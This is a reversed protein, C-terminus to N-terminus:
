NRVVFLTFFYYFYIANKTLSWSVQNELSFLASDDGILTSESVDAFLTMDREDKQWKSCDSRVSTPLFDKKTETRLEVKAVNRMANPAFGWTRSTVALLIFGKKVM